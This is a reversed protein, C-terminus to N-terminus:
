RGFIARLADQPTVRDRAAKRGDANHRPVCCFRAEGDMRFNQKRRLRFELRIREGEVYASMPRTATLHLEQGSGLPQKSM